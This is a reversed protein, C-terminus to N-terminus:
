VKIFALFIGVSTGSGKTPPDGVYLRETARETVPEHGTFQSYPTRYKGKRYQLVPRCSPPRPEVPLPRLLSAAYVGSNTHVALTPSRGM